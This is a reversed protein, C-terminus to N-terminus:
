NILFCKAFALFQCNKLVNKILDYVTCAVGIKWLVVLFGLVPCWRIWLHLSKLSAFGRQLSSLLQSSMDMHSWGRGKRHVKEQELSFIGFEIEEVSMWGGPWLLVHWSTPVNVSELDRCLYHFLWLLASTHMSIQRCRTLGYPFCTSVYAASQATNRFPM